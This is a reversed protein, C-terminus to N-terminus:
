RARAPVECGLRGGARGAIPPDPTQSYEPEDEVPQAPGTGRHLLHGNSSSPAADAGHSPSAGEVGRSASRGAPPRPLRTDLVGAGPRPRKTDPAGSIGAVTITPRWHPSSPLPLVVSKRASCRRSPRGSGPRRCRRAVRDHDAVLGDLELQARRAHQVRVDRRDDAVPDDDVRRREDRSSSMSAAFPMSVGFTRTLRLACTIMGYWTARSRAFSARRPPAFTPVVPRPMPGVYPSRAQRSPSRMSSRKSRSTSRSRIPRARGSLFRSSSAIPAAPKVPPAAPRAPRPRPRAAPRSWRSSM